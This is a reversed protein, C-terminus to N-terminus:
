DALEVAEVSPTKIRNHYAGASRQGGAKEQSLLLDEFIAGTKIRNEYLKGTEWSISEGACSLRFRTLTGFQREAGQYPRGAFQHQCNLVDLKEIEPSL